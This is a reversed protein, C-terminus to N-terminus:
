DNPRVELNRVGLVREVLEPLEPLIRNFENSLKLRFVTYMYVGHVCALFLDNGLMGDANGSINRSHGSAEVLRLAAGVNRYREALSGGSLPADDQIVMPLAGSGTQHDWMWNTWLWHQEPDSFHLLEGALNIARRQDIVGDMSSVFAEFRDSSDGSGHVLDSVAGRLADVGVIRVLRRSKRRISFVHRLLEVFGEESMSGLRVESLETGFLDRKAELRQAIGELEHLTALKTAEKLFEVASESDVVDRVTLSDYLM